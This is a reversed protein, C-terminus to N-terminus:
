GVKERKTYEDCMSKTIEISELQAFQKPTWGGANLWELRGRWVREHWAGPEMGRGIYWEDEGFEAGCSLCSTDLIGNSWPFREDPLDLLFEESKYGCVPCYMSGDDEYRLKFQDGNTKCTNVINM